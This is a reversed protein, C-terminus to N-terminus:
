RPPRLRLGRPTTAFGADVLFDRWTTGHVPEGDVKELMVAPRRGSRVAEVVASVAAAARPDSAPVWSLLSRGGRELYLVLGQGDVVVSAGVARGPRHTGSAAPWPLAAGFPNAPDTAALVLAAGTEDTARLRDVADGAAFQAAGLGEVFYGRRVRGAEEMTALVRYVAAFGGPVGEEAVAGRTVVGHRSLLAEATAHGRLTPSERLEPLRTWRGPM